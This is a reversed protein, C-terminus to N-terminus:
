SAMRREQRQKRREARSLHQREPQLDTKLSVAAAKSENARAPERGATGVPDLDTRLKLATKRPVAEAAAEQPVDVPKKRKRKAPLASRGAVDLQVHRSYLFFTALVLLYGTLWSGRGWIPMSAEGVIVPWRWYVAASTVFSLGSLAWAALAPRCRRMEIALRLGMATALVAVTAPWVVNFRIHAWDTGQRVMARILATMATSEALSLVLCVIAALIWVRYRGHYDDLRHRRLSYIFTATAAALGLLTSALWRGLSAPADLCLAAVAEKGFRPELMAALVHLGLCAGVAALCASLYLAIALRSLPLLTCVSRKRAERAADSYTQQADGTEGSGSALRIPASDGQDADDSLLRRRREHRM